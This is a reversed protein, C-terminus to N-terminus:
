KLTERTGSPIEKLLIQKGSFDGMSIKKLSFNTFKVSFTDIKFMVKIIYGECKCPPPHESIHWNM